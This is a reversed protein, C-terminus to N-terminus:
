KQKHTIPWGSEDVDHVPDLLLIEQMDSYAEITPSQYEIIPAEIKTKSEPGNCKKILNEETLQEVFSEFDTLILTSNGPYYLSLESTITESSHGSVLAGWIYAGISRISYYKGSDLNVAVVEDNIVEHVINAGSIEYIHGSM